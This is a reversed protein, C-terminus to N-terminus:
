IVLRIFNFVRSEDNTVLPIVHLGFKIFIRVYTVYNNFEYKGIVSM